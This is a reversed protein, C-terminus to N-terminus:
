TNRIDPITDSVLSPVVPPVKPHVLWEEVQPDVRRGTMGTEIATVFDSRWAM